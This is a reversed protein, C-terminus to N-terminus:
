FAITYDHPAVNWGKVVVTYHTNEAPKNMTEITVQKSEGPLLSFFNDTYYSPRVPKKENDLLQIQTFFAIKGSLNKVNLDIICSKSNKTTHITTKLTTKTMSSLSEFKGSAPGTM